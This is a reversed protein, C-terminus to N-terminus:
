KKAEKLFVMSDHFEDSQCDDDKEDECGRCGNEEEAAVAAAV